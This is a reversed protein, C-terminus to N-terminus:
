RLVKGFFVEASLALPSPPPPTYVVKGKIVSLNNADSRSWGSRIHAIKISILAILKFFYIQNLGIYDFAWSYHIM